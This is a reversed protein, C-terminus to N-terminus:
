SGQGMMPFYKLTFVSDGGEARGPHESTRSRRGQVGPSKGVATGPPGVQSAGVEQSKYKLFFNLLQYLDDESNIGIAQPPLPVLDAERQSMM